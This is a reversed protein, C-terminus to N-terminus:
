TMDTTKGTSWSGLDLSKLSECGCFMEKMNSCEDFKMEGFDFSELSRCGYFTQCANDVLRSREENVRDCYLGTIDACVLNECGYFLRLTKLINGSRVPEKITVSTIDTNLHFPSHQSSIREAGDHWSISATNLLTSRYTIGDIEATKPIVVDTPADTIKNGDEDYGYTVLIIYDHETDLVYYWNKYWDEEPQYQYPKGAATTNYYEQIIEEAGSERWGDPTIDNASIPDYEEPSLSKESVTNEEESILADESVTEEGETVPDDASVSAKNASIEPEEPELFLSTNEIGGILPPAKTLDEGVAHVPETLPVAVMALALIVIIAIRIMKQIKM